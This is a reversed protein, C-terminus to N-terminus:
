LDGCGRHELLEEDEGDAEVLSRERRQEPRVAPM